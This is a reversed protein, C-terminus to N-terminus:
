TGGGVGTRDERYETLQGKVERGQLGRGRGMVFIFLCRSPTARSQPCRGPGPPKLELRTEAVQQRHSKLCTVEARPVGPTFRSM